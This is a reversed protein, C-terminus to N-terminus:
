RLSGKSGRLKKIKAACAIVADLPRQFNIRNRILGFIIAHQAELWNYGMVKFRATRCHAPTAAAVFGIATLHMSYDMDKNDAYKIHCVCSFQAETLHQRYFFLADELVVRATLALYDHFSNYDNCVNIM